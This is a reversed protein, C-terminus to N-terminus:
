WGSRGVDFRRLTYQKQQQKEYLMRNPANERQRQRKFFKISTNASVFMGIYFGSIFDNIFQGIFLYLVIRKEKKKKIINTQWQSSTFWFNTPPLGPWTVVTSWDIVSLEGRRPFAACIETISLLFATLPVTVHLM